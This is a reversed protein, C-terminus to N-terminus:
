GIIENSHEHPIIYVAKDRLLLLRAVKEKLTTRLPQRHALIEIEAGNYTVEAARLPPGNGSVAVKLAHESNLHRNM